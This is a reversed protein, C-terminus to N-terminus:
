FSNHEVELKVGLVSGYASGWSAWGETGPIKRSVQTPNPRFSLVVAVVKV